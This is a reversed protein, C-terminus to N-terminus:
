PGSRENRLVTPQILNTQAGAWFPSWPQLCKHGWCTCGMLWPVWSAQLCLLTWCATWAHLFWMSFGGARNGTYGTFKIKKVQQVCICVSALISYFFINYFSSMLHCFLYFFFVDRGPKWTKEARGLLLQGCESWTFVSASVQSSPFFYFSTVLKCGSSFLLKLPLSFIVSYTIGCIDSKFLFYYLLLSYFM